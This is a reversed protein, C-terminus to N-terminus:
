EFLELCCWVGVCNGYECWVYNFVDFELCVLGLKVGLGEGFVFYEINFGLYVVLRVGNFWCYDFWCYIFLYGFCGYLCLVGYVDWGDDYGLVEGVNFLLIM